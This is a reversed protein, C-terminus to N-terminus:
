VIQMLKGMKMDISNLVVKGHIMLDTGKGGDATSACSTTSSGDGKEYARCLFCVLCM